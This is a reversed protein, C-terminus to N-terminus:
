APDPIPKFGALELRRNMEEWQSNVSKAILCAYRDYKGENALHLSKMYKKKGEKNGKLVVMFPLGEAMLAMNLIMRSMRGNGDPFPHIGVFEHSIKAAKMVASGKSHLLQHSRKAWEKMAHPINRCEVYLTEFDTHCADNRYEGSEMGEWESPILGNMLVRHVNKIKSEEFPAEEEALNIAMQIADLHLMVELFRRDKKQYSLHYDHRPDAPIIKRDKLTARKLVMEGLRRTEGEDLGAGEVRNSEFVIRIITEFLYNAMENIVAVDPLVNLTRSRAIIADARAIEPECNKYWPQDSLPM